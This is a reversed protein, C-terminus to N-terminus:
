RTIDEIRLGMMAMTLRVQVVGIISSTSSLNLRQRTEQLRKRVNDPSVDRLEAITNISLGMSYMMGIVSQTSTLEPFIKCYQMLKKNDITAM